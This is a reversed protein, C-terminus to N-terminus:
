QLLPRGHRRTKQPNKIKNHRVFKLYIQFHIERAYINTILMRFSIGRGIISLEFNM